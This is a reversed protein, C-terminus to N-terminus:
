TPSPQAPPALDAAPLWRWEAQRGQGRSLLYRTPPGESLLRFWWGDVRTGIPPVLLCDYSARHYTGRQSFDAVFFIFRM